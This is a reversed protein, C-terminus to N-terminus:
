LARSEYVLSHILLNDASEACFAICIMIHTLTFLNRVCVLQYIYRRVIEAKLGTPKEELVELLNMEVYEFVLYLKGKRRFAEILRVINEQKSIRLIKVERLTTKRVIEDDSFRTCAAYQRYTLQVTTLQPIRNTEM